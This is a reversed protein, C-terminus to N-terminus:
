DIGNPISSLAWCFGSDPEPETRSNEEGLSQLKEIGESLESLLELSCLLLILFLLLM